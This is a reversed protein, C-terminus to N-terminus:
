WDYSASMESLGTSWGDGLGVSFIPQLISVNVDPMDDDGAFSFINQNFAGWLVKGSKATFGVAPGVGM